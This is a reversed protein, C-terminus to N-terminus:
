YIWKQFVSDYVYLNGKNSFLNILDISSSYRIDSTEPFGKFSNGVILVKIKDIDKQVKKCYEEIKNYVYKGGQSNIQRSIKPLKPQYSSHSFSHTDAFLYPDKTLCYGGVGPSPLPISNRPYGKNAASILSFANINFQDSVNAVENAFPLCWIM